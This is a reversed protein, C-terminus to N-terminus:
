AWGWGYIEGDGSSGLHKFGLRELIAPATAMGPEALALVPTRSEKVAAEARKILRLIPMAKLHPRLEEHFTSFMNAAPRTLALGIIGKPEGDLEAVWARFSCTQDPYFARVDSSTAPRTTLRV